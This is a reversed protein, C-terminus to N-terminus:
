RSGLRTALYDWYPTTAMVAEMSEEDLNSGKVPMPIVSRRLKEMFCKRYYSYRWREQNLMMQTFLLTPLRMSFRPTAVAVDDKAAFVYPHYKTTLPRGNLAITLCDRHVYEAPADVHAVVGHDEDGCSM